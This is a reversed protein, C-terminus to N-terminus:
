NIKFGVEHTPPNSNALNYLNYLHMYTHITKRHSCANAILWGVRGVPRM